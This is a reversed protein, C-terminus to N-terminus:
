SAVHECLAGIPDVRKMIKDDDEYVKKVLGALQEQRGTISVPDLYIKVGKTNKV